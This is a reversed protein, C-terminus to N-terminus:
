RLLSVALAVAPARTQSAGETATQPANLLKLPQAPSIIDLHFEDHQVRVLADGQLVVILRTGKNYSM